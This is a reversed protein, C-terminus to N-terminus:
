PLPTEADVLVVIAVAQGEREIECGDLFDSFAPMEFNGSYQEYFSYIWEIPDRVALIIKADPFEEVIREFAADDTFYVGCIDVTYQEPSAESYFSNYWQLGRNNHHAFYGIEKRSPLYLQTHKLLNHYMFTTGARSMGVMIVHKSKNIAMPFRRM